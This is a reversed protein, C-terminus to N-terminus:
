RRYLVAHINKVKTADIDIQKEPNYQWLFLRGDKQARYQKVLASGDKLEVVCDGNKAPPTNLGVIVIEGSYLRPEMSDGAVRIAMIDGRAIGVPVEIRDIVRDDAITIRDDSGAAAYGYVPIQMFQPGAPAPDDGAFFAEIKESEELDLNREGLLMRSVSDKSKGIYRALAAQTRGTTKLRARIEPPKM